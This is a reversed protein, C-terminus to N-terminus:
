YAGDSYEFLESSLFIRSWTKNFDQLFEDAMAVQRLSKEERNM